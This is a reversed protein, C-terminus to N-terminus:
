GHTGAVDGVHGGELGLSRRAPSSHGRM